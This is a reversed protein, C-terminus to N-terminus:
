YSAIVTFLQSYSHIFLQCYRGTGALVQWYIGGRLFGVDRAAEGSALPPVFPAVPITERELRATNDEDVM